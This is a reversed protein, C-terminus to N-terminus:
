DSGKESENVELEHVSEKRKKEDDKMMASYMEKFRHGNKIM